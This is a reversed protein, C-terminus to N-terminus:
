YRIPSLRGRWCFPDFNLVPEAPHASCAASLLQKTARSSCPEFSGRSVLCAYTIDM